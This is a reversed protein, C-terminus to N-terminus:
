MRLSFGHQYEGSLDLLDHRDAVFDLDFDKFYLAVVHAQTDGSGFLDRHMASLHVIPDFLSSLCHFHRSPLRQGCGRCSSRTHGM